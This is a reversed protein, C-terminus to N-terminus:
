GSGSRAEDLVSRDVMGKLTEASMPSRNDVGAVYGDEKALVDELDSPVTGTWKHVPWVAKMLEEEMKVAKAARAIVGEDGAQFLKLSKELARLFEVIEKRKAPDSLKESTTHLNFIERYVNFDQFFIANESGIARAALEVTPEWFGVADIQGGKLMAPFTGSGCPENLCQNGNVISYEGKKVGAADMMREVFYGSSTASMCGIKKGKLDAVKSIKRKDAM